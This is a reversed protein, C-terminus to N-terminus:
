LTNGAYHRRRAEMYAESAEEVTKYAGLFRYRGDVKVSAIFGDRHPSVGLVGTKSHSCAARRNQLNTQHDVDRLNSFRNDTNDGNIHDIEHDPWKGTVLFWVLRHVRVRKGFVTVFLSGDKHRQGAVVGAKAGRYSRMRTLEGTALNYRFTSRVFDLTLGEPLSYRPGAM